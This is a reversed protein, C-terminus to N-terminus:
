SLRKKSESLRNSFTESCKFVLCSQKARLIYRKESKEKKEAVLTLLVM